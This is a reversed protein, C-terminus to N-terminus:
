IPCVISFLVSLINRCRTFLTNILSRGNIPLEKLILSYESNTDTLIKTPLSLKQNKSWLDNLYILWFKNIFFVKSIYKRKNLKANNHREIKSILESRTEKGFSPIPGNPATQCSAAKPISLLKVEFPKSIKNIPNVIVVLKVRTNESTAPNIIWLAVVTTVEPKDKLSPESLIVSKIIANTFPSPLIVSESPNPRLIIGTNVM